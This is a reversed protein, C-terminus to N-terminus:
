GYSDEKEKMEIYKKCTNCWPDLPDIDTIYQYSNIGMRVSIEIDESGCKECIWIVPNKKKKDKRYLIIPKITKNM